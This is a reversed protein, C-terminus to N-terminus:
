QPSEGHMWAALEAFIGEEAARCRGDLTGDLMVKAWEVVLGHSFGDDRVVEHGKGAADLQARVDAEVGPDIDTSLRVRLPAGDSRALAEGVWHRCWKRQRGADRWAERALSVLQDMAQNRADNLLQWRRRRINARVRSLSADRSQEQTNRAERARQHFRERSEHRAGRVAEDLAARLEAELRDLQARRESEIRELFAAAEAATSDPDSV